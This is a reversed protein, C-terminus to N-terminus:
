QNRRNHKHAIVGREQKFGLKYAVSGTKDVNFQPRVLILLLHVPSTPPVSHYGHLDNIRRNLPGPPLKKHNGDCFPKRDTQKCLCLWVDKTKDAVYPVPRVSPGGARNHSGDCWPQLVEREERGKRGPSLPHAGPQTLERLRVLPLDERGRAHGQRPAEGRPRGQLPEPARQGARGGEGDDGGGDGLGGGFGEWEEGEVPHVPVPVVEHGALRLSQVTAPLRLLPRGARLTAM